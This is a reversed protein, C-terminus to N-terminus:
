SELRLTNTGDETDNDDTLAGFLLWAGLGIALWKLLGSGAVADVLSELAAVALDLLSKVVGIIVKLVKDVINVILRWIKCLWSPM